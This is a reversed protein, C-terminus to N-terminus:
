RKWVGEKGGGGEEMGKGGCEKRRGDRDELMKEKRDQRECRGKQKRIM